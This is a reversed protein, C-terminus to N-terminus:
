EQVSGADSSINENPDSVKVWKGPISANVRNNYMAECYVMPMYFKGSYSASLRTKINISKGKQLNFYTIVRDDRIDQYTFNNEDTSEFAFRDTMVEWGSPFIQTLAMSSYNNLSGPHSITTNVYFITGQEINEPNIVSGDLGNYSVKMTLNNQTAPLDHEKPIGKRILRVYLTGKGTNSVSIKGNMEAGLDISHTMNRTHFDKSSNKHSMKFNMQKGMPFYTLYIAVARLSQSATQTSLWSNTRLEEAIERLIDLANNNMGLRLYTELIFAKDRIHSGYTYGYEYYNMINTTTKAILRRAADPRGAIVYASALMWKAQPSLYSTESIRNMSAIEATGSLALTYLRYAQMLDNNYVTRDHKWNKVKNQQFSKWKNIFQKSVVYGKHQAEIMFHGAYSTTWDDPYQSGPWMAIGGSTLQLNQIRSIAWKIKSEAKQKGSEDAETLKDVYLMPFAGSITQESCGHPYNLLYTLWKDINMPIFSSVELINGNTGQVGISAYVTEWTEGEKLNAETVDTLLPNSPRIDIETKWVAKENGSEATIYIQGIGIAEAVDLEFFVLQEGSKSFRLSQSRKGSIQMINNTKVSINVNKIHDEMAFVSVPLKFSEGPGIVRPVTGLLMLPNRVPVSKETHGYAKENGAVVMIRVSGVYEPIDISHTQTKGRGLEVPGLFKVMPKFRNARQGSPDVEVDDGGGISLVRQIPAGWAGIVENYIDWTKVGLAERSYFRSHPDPTKFKTLNLLGEDVIALTYTMPKGNSESVSINATRGPRIVEPASIVPRLKTEPNDVFVPVVGYLRIPLGDATNAHPQILVVSLYVNPSMEATAKTKFEIQNDRENLQYTELIGKGNEISIYARSGAPAKFNLIIEEGTTFNSKNTSMSLMAAATKDNEAFRNYGSWDFFTVVGSTHGSEPDYVKILYKGWEDNSVKMTFNGLGNKMVVETSIVPTTNMSYMFESASNDYGSWWYRWDMKYVELKVKESKAPKGDEQVNAIKFSYSRDTFLYPAQNNTQPKLIGVYSSFPSVNVSMFDISFEGGPEYVRTEINASIFGPANEIKLDPIFKVKGLEDLRGQFLSFRDSSFYKTPDDFVFGTYKPFTTKINRFTIDSEVKLNAASAGHLWQSEIQFEPPNAISILKSGPDTQIRLRNPKISEVRLTQVFSNKGVRAILRYLGTPADTGTATHFSYFGNMGTTVSRKDILNGRPNYFEFIVPHDKPMIKNNDELIFTVFLSDGPRWVGREAYLFGKLGKQIVEGSVDFSSLSLSNGDSMKLYTQQKDKEAIILYPKREPKLRCTGNQDTKSGAISQLQFDFVRINVDKMPQATILDTSFIHLEGNDGTKAMLGIDTALINTSVKKGYYYSRSCPDDREYWDYYYYDDDDYWDYYYEWNEEDEDAIENFFGYVENQIFETNECEITAFQPRFSLEVNYIAGQETKIMESIDLFYTNWRNYDAVQGLPITKKLVTKGVRTMQNKGSLENVQLFQPINSQYIKIIKVDVAKLNVAEFPLIMGNSSPLITGNSVFRVNPALNEFKIRQSYEKELSKGNFNLISKSISLYEEGPIDLAPYIFLEHFNIVYSYNFFKGLKIKGELEQTEKLPDSFRIIIVEEPFRRTVVDTIVFENIGHIKYTLLGKKDNGINRGNYSIKVDSEKVGRVISDVTFQHKRRGADQSWTVPLSKGNQEAKIINRINEETETDATLVYGTLREKSLDQQSYARSSEIFVEFDQGITHFSFVLNKLSDPVKVLKSLKFQVEFYTNPPLKEEPQFKITRLDTWTASGKISPKFSFLSPDAPQNIMMSDAADVNLRVIIGTETSVPGTTFGDVFERFAPDVTITKMQDASSRKCSELTTFITLIILILSMFSIVKLKM